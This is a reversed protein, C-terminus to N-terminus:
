GLAAAQDFHVNPRAPQKVHFVVSFPGRNETERSEIERSVGLSFPLSGWTEHKVHFM